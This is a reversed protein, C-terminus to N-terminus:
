QNGGAAAGSSVVKLVVSEQDKSEFQAYFKRLADYDKQMVLVEGRLHGRRTTFSTPASTIALTYQEAGPYSFKASDPTAELEFEKPFNVRLADLTSQPYHFYVAQERKEHPFTATAGAEFFDAPMLLRKGTVTGMTGKVDFMVVLPKEYDDVDVMESVKVELSKPVREGLWKVLEHNLSEVDGSLASHRWSVAPSGTFTLKITGTVEGKDNMDLNAVRDTRNYKYDDGDTGGFDTGSDTQRLGRVFTHEWALHGYPTYRWGPDFFVEKGGVNVIAIVEDFQDFSQWQPTFLEESRDPVEMLYAKMGAARAMGVFLETLQTPSGRKHTLVDAATKVKGGAEAKEERQEHSRTFRTNELAMVAAYIKKLKEDDSTAGAIVTQTAAKLEGNPNAFSDSRKSWEKGEEKWYEAASHFPTFAFLVRYSYSAIPPMFEEEVTPPVDKINLEYIQQAPQFPSTAPLETHVIKVDAPLIPFWSIANIPREKYDVLQKLTPFWQYHAAKVYLEGQIIWHPSEFRNDAIRTAYRYEIISGVEADPLTFIKAQYKIGVGKEM